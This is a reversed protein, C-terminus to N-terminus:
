CELRCLERVTFEMASRRGTSAGLAASPALRGPFFSYALLAISSLSPSSYFSFQATPTPLPTDKKVSTIWTKTGGGDM